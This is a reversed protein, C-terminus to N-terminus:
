CTKQAAILSVGGAITISRIPEVHRIRLGNAAILQPSRNLRRQATARTRRSSPPAPLVDVLLLVADPAMVRSVEALGAAQDRWHSLSLTIVVLDFVADTFPLREAIAAAFRASGAGPGAAAHKIMETSADVAVVRSHQFVAVLRSALRGTGCGVDLIQGPDRVLHRAQRLVADHARGYLVAQLQSAEYCPAWCDFRRISVGRATALETAGSTRDRGTGV